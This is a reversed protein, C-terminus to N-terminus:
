KGGFQEAVTDREDAITKLIRKDENEKKFIVDYADPDLFEKVRMKNKDETDLLLLIGSFVAGYM